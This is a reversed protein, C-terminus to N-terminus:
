FRATYTVEGGSPGAAVGVHSEEHHTAWLYAGAGLLAVGGIGM